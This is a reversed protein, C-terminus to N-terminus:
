SAILRRYLALFCEATYDADHTLAWQHARRAIETRQQPNALLAIIGEAIADPTHDVGIALPPTSSSFDAVHGVRTGVTAVGCLAAELVALPGAEHWSTNLHVAANGLLQALSEPQVFGLLRVSDSIGLTRALEAHAGNMTDVGSMSLTAKPYRDLVHAFARIAVMQDKVANLSGVHVVHKGDIAAQGPRFRAPDAGLPIIESAVVGVERLHDAMFQTAATTATALRLASRTLLRTGRRIGGGYGIEPISALEGGCISVVTPVGLRRGALAAALGTVGAWMGHIVDVEPGSKIVKVTARVARFVDVRSHQGIPINVVPCGYLSWRREAVDHGIAIISVDHHRALRIVLDHIFPIVRQSGPPDVGGPVVLAIHVIWTNCPGLRARGPLLTRLDDRWQALLLKLQQGCHKGAEVTVLCHQRLPRKILDLADAYGRSQRRQARVKLQELVNLGLDPLVQSFLL